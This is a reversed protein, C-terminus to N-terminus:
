RRGNSNGRGNANRRPGGRRKPRAKIRWAAVLEAHRVQLRLELLEQFLEELEKLQDINLLNSVATVLRAPVFPKPILISNPVGQSAWNQHYATVYVVPFSNDKERIRRAVEWGNLGGQLKVDAVLAKYNKDGAKFRTLAEEGSLVAESAFGAETLAREVDALLWYEDEIVLVLPLESLSGGM